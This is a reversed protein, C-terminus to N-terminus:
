FLGHDHTLTRRLFAFRHPLMFEQEPNTTSKTLDYMAIINHDSLVILHHTSLPHWLAHRIKTKGGAPIPWMKRPAQDPGGSGCEVVVCNAGWEDFEPTLDGCVVMYKELHPSLCCQRPILPISSRGNCEYKVDEWAFQAGPTVKEAREIKLPASPPQKHKAQPTSEQPEQWESTAKYLVPKKSISM